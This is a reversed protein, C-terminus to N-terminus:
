HTRRSHERMARSRLEAPSLLRTPPSVSPLSSLITESIPERLVFEERDGSKKAEAIVVKGSAPDVAFTKRPPLKAPVVMEGASLYPATKGPVVGSTTYAVPPPTEEFAKYPKYGEPLTAWQFDVTHVLQADFLAKIANRPALPGSMPLTYDLRADPLEFTIDLRDMTDNYFISPLLMRRTWAPGGHRDTLFTRLSEVARYAREWNIAHIGDMEPKAREWLRELYVAEYETAMEEAWNDAEINQWQDYRVIIDYQSGAYDAASGDEVQLDSCELDMWPPAYEDMGNCWHGYAWGQDALYSGRGVKFMINWFKLLYKHDLFADAYEQKTDCRRRQLYNPKWLEMIDKQATTFSIGTM